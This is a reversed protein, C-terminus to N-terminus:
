QYIEGFCNCEGASCGFVLMKTKDVGVHGETAASVVDNLKEHVWEYLHSISDMLQLATSEPLKPYNPSVIIAGERLAYHM